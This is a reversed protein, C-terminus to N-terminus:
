TKANFTTTAALHSKGQLIFALALPLFQLEVQQILAEL